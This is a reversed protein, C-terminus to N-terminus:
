PTLLTVEEWPSNFLIQETVRKLSRTIVLSGQHEEAQQHVSFHMMGIEAELKVLEAQTGIDEDSWARIFVGTM